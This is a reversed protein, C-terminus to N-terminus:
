DGQQPHEARNDAAQAGASLAETVKRAYTAPDTKVKAICGACCVYIKKGEHEVFLNKDIKGGMVPCVTQVRELTVGTDELQKIYKAPDAKIQDICAPCCVYVRKGDHDVYQNKDIKGGMVPCTTQAVVKPADAAEEANLPAPVSAVFAGLV